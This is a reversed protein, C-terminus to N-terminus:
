AQARGRMETYESLPSDDPLLTTIGATKLAGIRGSTTFKTCVLMRLFLRWGYATLSSAPSHNHM